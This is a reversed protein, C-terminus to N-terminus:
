ESDTSTPAPAYVELGEATADAAIEDIAAEAKDMRLQAREFDKESLSLEEHAKDYRKQLRAQKKDAKEQEEAQAKALQQQIREIRSLEPKTTDKKNDAM